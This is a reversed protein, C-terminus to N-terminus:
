LVQSRLQSQTGARALGQLSSELAKMDAGPIRVPSVQQARLQPTEVSSVAEASRGLIPKIGRVPSKYEIRALDTYYDKIATKRAKISKSTAGSGRGSLAVEPSEGEKFFFNKLMKKEAYTILKRDELNDLIGNSVLIKGNVKKRGAALMQILEGRDKTSQAVNVVREMVYEIKEDNTLKAVQWYEADGRNVGLSELLQTKQEDSVLDSELIDDVKKFVKKERTIREFATESEPKNLDDVDFLTQLRGVEAKPPEIGAQASREFSERIAKEQNRVRKEQVSDQYLREGEPREETIKIPSIANLLPFQRESEQGFPDTYAPLNMSAFPIQSQISQAIAVPIGDKWSVKRYIPDVMRSTWGLFARFPVFQQPINALLRTQKFEDGKIADVVDGITQMYSQDTFFEGINAAIKGATILKQEEPQDSERIAQQVAAAMMIPYSLPGLKSFSVWKDGIKLSYPQRGSAYFREREKASTPASLTANGGAAIAAATAMTMSGITAKALQDATNGRSRIMNLFGAPSYEVGQKLINMPTQVFPILLKSAKSIGKTNRSKNILSTMGDVIDLMWGQGEKNLEGRFLTELADKEAERAIRAQAAETIPKGLKEARLLRAGKEGEELITKFFIDGAELVQLIKRAPATIAAGTPIRNLDLNTIEAEGRLVKMASDKASPLSSLANKVFPSVESAFQKRENGTLGSIAWDYGGALMKRPAQVGVQILNSAFNTAHTLPSSLMNGYRFEDLTDVLSPPVYKRYFDTVERANNFNVDIADKMYVNPDAGANDLLRFVKQMPTDLENAIIRRAQLQRAVDTGQQRAVTSLKQVEGMKKAIANRSAGTNKLDDLQNTLTTIKQRINLQKAIVEATQVKDRAYKTDPLQKSLEVVDVNKLVGDDLNTQLSEVVQKNQPSLNLRDINLKKKGVRVKKPPTIRATDALSRTPKVGGMFAAAGMGLAARTPDFGFSMRGEEDAEPTIGALMGPASERLMRSPRTPDQRFRVNSDDVVGGAAQFVENAKEKIFRGTKSDILQGLSNRVERAIVKEQDGSVGKLRSMINQVLNDIGTKGARLLETNASPSLVAGIVLSAVDDALGSRIDDLASIARDELVNVGGMALRNVVQKGLLSSGTPIFGTVLDTAPSIGLATLGTTGALRGAAQGRTEGEQPMLAGIGGALGLTGAARLPAAMGLGLGATRVAPSAARAFTKLGPQELGTRERQGLTFQAISSPAQSMMRGIGSTDIKRSKALLQQRQQPSVGGFAAQKALESSRQLQRYRQQALPQAAMGAVQSGATFINRLTGGVAQGAGKVVGAGFEGVGLAINDLRSPSAQVRGRINAM